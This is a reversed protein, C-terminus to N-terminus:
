SVIIRRQRHVYEPPPFGNKLIPMAFKTMDIVNFPIVVGRYGQQKLRGDPQKVMRVEEWGDDFKRIIANRKFYPNKKNVILYM